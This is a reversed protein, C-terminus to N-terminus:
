AFTSLWNARAMRYTSVISARAITGLATPIDEIRAAYVATGISELRDVVHRGEVDRWAIVLDPARAALWEINPTLGQGVSPLGALRADVDFETRAILRGELGLALVVDTASPVLSVVREAPAYLRVLRGADDVAAVGSGSGAQREQAREAADGCGLLSLALLAPGITWRARPFM